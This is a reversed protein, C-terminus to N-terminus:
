KRKGKMKNLLAERRKGLGVSKELRVTFRVRFDENVANCANCVWIAERPIHAEIVRYWRFVANKGCETCREDLKPENKM